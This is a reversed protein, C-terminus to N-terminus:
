TLHVPGDPPTTRPRQPDPLQGALHSRILMNGFSRSPSQTLRRGGWAPIIQKSKTVIRRGRAPIIQCLSQPLGREGPRFSRSFSKTAIGGGSGSNQSLSQPLGRGGWALLPINCLLVRLPDNRSPHMGVQPPLPNGRPRLRIM